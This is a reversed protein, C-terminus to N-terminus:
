QKIGRKSPPLTFLKDLEATEYDKLDRYVQNSPLMRKQIATRLKREAQVDSIWAALGLVYHREQLDRQEFAKRSKVLELIPQRVISCIYGQLDPALNESVILRCM